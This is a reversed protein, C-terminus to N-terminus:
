WQAYLKCHIYPRLTRIYQSHTILDLHKYDTILHVPIHSLRYPQTNYDESSTINDTSPKVDVNRAYQM